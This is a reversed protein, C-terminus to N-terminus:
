RVWFMMKVRRNLKDLRKKIRRGEDESSAVPLKKWKNTWATVERGYAAAKEQFSLPSTRLQKLDREYREIMAEYEDLLADAQSTPFSKGGGCGIVIGLILLLLIASANVGRIKFMCIGGSPCLTAVMRTARWPGPLVAKVDPDAEPLSYGTGADGLGFANASRRGAIDRMVEGYAPSGAKAWFRAM